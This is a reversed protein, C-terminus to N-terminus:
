KIQSIADICWTLQTQWDPLKIGFTTTLKTNDLRSNKPRKAKTPYEASSVPKPLEIYNGTQRNLGAYIATAFDYWSAVGGASVHYTGWDLKSYEVGAGSNETSLNNLIKSVIITTAMAIIRSWTPTGIQDNVVNPTKGQQYLQLMTKFFNKGRLGYVWCLRLICHKDCIARVAAEGDRKTLGYVSLPSTLDLESYLSDISKNGDFVYDTSYHIMPINRRAAEEALIRPSETNIARALDPCDEALDVATFAAPHVILDIRNLDRLFREFSLVDSLDVDQVDIVCVESLLSLMQNLEYGVQGSGGTLLIKYEM